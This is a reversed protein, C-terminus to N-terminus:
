NFYHTLLKPVPLVISLVNGVLLFHYTVYVRIFFLRAFLGQSRQVNIRQVNTYKKTICIEQSMLFQLQLLFHALVM